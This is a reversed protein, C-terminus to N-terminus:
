SNVKQQSQAPNNKRHIKLTAGFREKCTIKSIVNVYANCNDLILAMVQKNVKIEQLTADYKFTV